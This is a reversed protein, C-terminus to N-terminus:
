GQKALLALNFSELDRFRMGEKTKAKGMQKWSVWHVKHKNQQQGWWFHNMVRNLERLLNQPLKFVGMCYTPLAQAVAKLLIEKGAQSLLKTSWHSVKSRVRDLIGKFAENKSRGIFTPLELYKEYNSTAKLGAM